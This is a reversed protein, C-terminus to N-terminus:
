LLLFFLYISDTRLCLAPTEQCVLFHIVPSKETHFWKQRIAGKFLFSLCVSLSITASVCLCLCLCLNLSLLSNSPIQFTSKQTGRQEIDGGNEPLRVSFTFLSRHRVPSEHLHLSWMGKVVRQRQTCSCLFAAACTHQSVAFVGSLGKTKQPDYFARRLEPSPLLIVPFSQVACICLCSVPVFSPHNTFWLLFM